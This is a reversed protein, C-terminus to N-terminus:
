AARIRRLAAQRANAHMSRSLFFWTCWIPISLILFRFIVAEMTQMVFYLSLVVMVVYQPIWFGGKEVANRWCRGYGWGIFFLAPFAIWRFEIWLDATIGPASGPAGNWGLTEHFSKGGTGANVELEPV